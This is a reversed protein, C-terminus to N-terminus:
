SSARQRVIEFLLISGAAAVNLSEAGGPMPIHLPQPALARAAASAGHAEGGLLLALPQRLDHEYYAPGEGAAALLPQLKHAALVAAIEEWSQSLVPLRFHAGMGGRLVKPGYADACGPALLVAGCGAAAASRLLTGLNGPDAVGDLVLVFDLNAPLAPPQLALQLLIGQPTQTDAAAKMVAESVLEVTAGRAALERLLRPEAAALEETHLALRLPWGSLLAERALRVGEVVFAGAGKRRKTQRLLARTEQVKANQASRIM